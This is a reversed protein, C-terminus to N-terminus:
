TCCDVSYVFSIWHICGGVFPLIHLSHLYHLLWCWFATLVCSVYQQLTDTFIYIHPKLVDPSAKWSGYVMAKPQEMQGNKTRMATYVGDKWTRRPRGWKKKNMWTELWDYNKTIVNPGNERCTWVFHTKKSNDWGINYRDTFLIYFKALYHYACWIEHSQGRM